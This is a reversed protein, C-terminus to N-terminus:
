DTCHCQLIICVARRVLGASMMAEKWSSPPVTVVGMDHVQGVVDDELTHTGHRVVALGLHRRSSRSAQRSQVQEDRSRKSVELIITM